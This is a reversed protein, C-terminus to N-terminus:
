RQQPSKFPVYGEETWYSNYSEIAEEEPAEDNDVRRSGNGVVAVADGLPSPPSYTGHNNSEDRL